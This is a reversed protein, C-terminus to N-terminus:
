IIGKQSRKDDKEYVQRNIHEVEEVVCTVYQVEHKVGHM